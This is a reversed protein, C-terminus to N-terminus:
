PDNFEAVAPLPGRNGGFEATKNCLEPDGFFSPMGGYLNHQNMIDGVGDFVSTGPFPGSLRHKHVTM